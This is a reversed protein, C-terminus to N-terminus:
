DKLYDTGYRGILADALTIALLSDAVSKIRHAICPDHRGKLEIVGDEGKVFDVTEQKQFISPTPKIALNFLIPMGNSIGGNIGGNNNTKCMVKGDKMFFPDNAESGKMDAMDFGSGFSIGKVGGISFMAHSIKSELSDFFPEGLGAPVGIVATELIGGVSDKDERAKEIRERMLDAAEDSLVPFRMDKLKKVDEELNEFARDNIGACKKLHTGIFIGKNELAPIIIGGAAVLAATIRGSFHGGGRKDEFGHYKMYAAYDAHSPRALNETKKYDESKTNENPIIISIPTGTTKGDFVGSEIRFKDEEVRQTSILGFPRRLFLKYAIKEMDVTVGPSIGDIVVGIASGHSEGFLTVTLNDGFTNKM